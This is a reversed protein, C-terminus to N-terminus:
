LLISAQASRERGQPDVAVTEVTNVGRRLLPLALVGQLAVGPPREPLDADSPELYRLSDVPLPRDNVKIRVRGALLSDRTLGPYHLLVSFSPTVTRRPRLLIYPEAAEGPELPVPTAVPVPILPTPGEGGHLPQFEALIRPMDAVFREIEVQKARIQRAIQYLAGYRGNLYETSVEEIANVVQEMPLDTRPLPITWQTNISPLPAGPSYSLRVPISLHFRIPVAGLPGVLQSIIAGIFRQPNPEGMIQLIPEVAIPGLGGILRPIVGEAAVRAAARAADEVVQRVFSEPVLTFRRIPLAPRIHEFLADALPGILREQLLNILAERDRALAEELRRILDALDILLQKHYLELLRPLLEESLSRVHDWLAKAVEQATAILEVRRPIWDPQQLDAALQQAQGPALPSVVLLALRILEAHAPLRGLYRAILQVSERVPEEYRESLGLRELVGLRVLDGSVQDMLRRIEAAVARVTVDFIHVSPRGVLPILSLSLAEMLTERDIGGQLRNAVQPLVVQGVMEVAAVLSSQFLAALEENGPFARALLAGVQEALGESVYRQLGDALRGLVPHPDGEVAFTLLAQAVAQPTAGLAPTFLNLLPTDTPIQEALLGAIESWGVPQQPDRGLRANIAAVLAEPPQRETLPALDLPGPAEQARGALATALLAVAWLALLAVAGQTREEGEPLAAVLDAGAQILQEGQEPTPEAPWAALLARVPEAAPLDAGPGQLLQELRSRGEAALQALLGRQGEQVIVHLAATAVEASSVGPGGSLLSGIEYALRIGLRLPAAVNRAEDGRGAEEVLATVLLDTARVVLRRPSAIDARVFARFGGGFKFGMGYDFAFTFGAPREPTGLLSGTAVLDAFAMASVAVQGHVEGYLGVEELFLELLSEVLGKVEPKEGLRDLLQGVTMRFSLGVAVGAKVIAELRLALGAETFLNLPVQGQARVRVEASARLFLTLDTWKDLLLRIQQVQAISAQLDMGRRIEARGTIETTGLIEEWNAVRDVQTGFIERDRDIPPLIAV